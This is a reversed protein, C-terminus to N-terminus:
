FYIVLSHLTMMLKSSSTGLNRSWLLSSCGLRVIVVLLCNLVLQELPYLYVFGMPDSHMPLMSGFVFQYMSQMRMASNANPVHKPYVAGYTIAQDISPM